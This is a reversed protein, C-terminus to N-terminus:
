CNYKIKWSSFKSAIAIHKTVNIIWFKTKVIGNKLNWLKVELIYELEKSCTCELFLM